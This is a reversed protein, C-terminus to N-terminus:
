CRIFLILHFLLIQLQCQSLQQWAAEEKVKLGVIEFWDLFSPKWALTFPEVPVCSHTSLAPRCGGTEERQWLNWFDDLYDNLPMM